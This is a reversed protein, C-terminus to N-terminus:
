IPLLEERPAHRNREFRQRQLDDAHRAVLDAVAAFRRAVDFKDLASSAPFFRNGGAIREAQVQAVVAYHRSDDGTGEAVLGAQDDAILDEAHVVLFEALVIEM